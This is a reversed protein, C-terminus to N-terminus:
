SGPPVNMLTWFIGFALGGILMALLLLIMCGSPSPLLAKLEFNRKM